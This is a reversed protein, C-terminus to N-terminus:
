KKEGNSLGNPYIAYIMNFFLAFDNVICQYDSVFDYDATMIMGKKLIINIVLFAFPIILWLRSKLEVDKKERVYSLILFVVICFSAFLYNLLICKGYLKYDSISLLIYLILFVNGIITLKRNNRFLSIALLLYAILLFVIEIWYNWLFSSLLGKMGREIGIFVLRYLNFIFMLEFFTGAVLAFKSFCFKENKRKTFFGIIYGILLLVACERILNNYDLEYSYSFHRISSDTYERLIDKLFVIRHGAAILFFIVPLVYLWKRKGERKIEESKKVSLKLYLLVFIYCAMEVLTLWFPWEDLNLYKARLFALRHDYVTQTLFLVFLSALVVRIGMTYGPKRRKFNVM